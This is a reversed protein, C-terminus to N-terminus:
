AWGPAHARLARLRKRRFLGLAGRLLANERRRPDERHLPVQPLLEFAALARLEARHDQELHAKRLLGAPLDRAALRAAQLHLQLPEQHHGRLAKGQARLQQLGLLELLGHPAPSTLGGKASRQLHKNTFYFENNKKIVILKATEILSKAKLFMADEMSTGLFFSLLAIEVIM